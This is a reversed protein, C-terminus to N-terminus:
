EDISTSARRRRRWSRVWGRLQGTPQPYREVFAYFAATVVYGQSVGEAKARERIEERAVRPVLVLMKTLALDDHERSDEPRQGGTPGETPQADDSSTNM